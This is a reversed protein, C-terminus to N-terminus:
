KEIKNNSTKPWASKQEKQYMKSKDQFQPKTFKFRIEEKNINLNKSPSIIIM